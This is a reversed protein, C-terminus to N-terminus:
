GILSGSIISSGASIGCARLLGGGGWHNPIGGRPWDPDMDVELPPPQKGKRNGTTDVLEAEGDPHDDDSM